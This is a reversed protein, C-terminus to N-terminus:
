KVLRHCASFIAGPRAANADFVWAGEIVDHGAAIPPSPDEPIVVVAAEEEFRQALSAFRRSPLRGGSHQHGVMVMKKQPVRFRIEDPL